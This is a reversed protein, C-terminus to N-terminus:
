SGAADAANTAQIISPTACLQGYVSPAGSTRFTLPRVATFISGAPTIALFPYTGYTGATAAPLFRFSGSPARVVLQQGTTLTFVHQRAVAVCVDGPVRRGPGQEFSLRLTDMAQDAPSITSPKPIRGSAAGALLWGITVFHALQQEPKVAAPVEKAVAVYPLSLMMQRYAVQNTVIPRTMYTDIVNLNGPIGVVIVAVVVVSLPRFRRMVTDAAVALAPLTMAAVLHLYRSKEQFTGLGARGFGTILLLALAGVLLGVPLAAQERLTRWDLPRYALFLGGILLVGLLPGVGRVHGMAGFTAAVFTRVFSLIQGVNAHYGTFGSHGIAAYWGVYLAALPVTHVLALRWGRVMLVAVGVAIVMSVGVGSCMLAACGAGLAYWDRRDLSRMDPRDHTAGLLQMLGFVLSGVLTMQFPLVINQYGSGFFVLVCAVITATWPRVGVRRMVVRILLAAGLHLVLIVVQYPVYSHLGFVWWLGRYMLVPITVWHENHARFLDGLNFATRNALFDWEDLYFWMHRSIALYFVFAVFEALFFVTLATPESSQPPRSDDNRPGDGPEAVDVALAPPESSRSAQSM